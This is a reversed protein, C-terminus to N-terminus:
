VNNKCSALTKKILSSLCPPMVGDKIDERICRRYRYDRAEGYITVPSWSLGSVTRRCCFITVMASNVMPKSLFISPSRLLYRALSLSSRSIRNIRHHWFTNMPAQLNMSFSLLCKTSSRRRKLKGSFSIINSVLFIVAYSCGIIFKDNAHLISKEQVRVM